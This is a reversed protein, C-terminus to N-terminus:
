KFLQSIIWPQGKLLSGLAGYIKRLLYEALIFVGLSDGCIVTGGLQIKHNPQVAVGEAGANDTLLQVPFIKNGHRESLVLAVAVDSHLYAIKHFLVATEAANGGIVNFVYLFVQLVHLHSIM